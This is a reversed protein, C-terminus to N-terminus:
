RPPMPPRSPRRRQWGASVMWADTQVWTAEDGSPITFVDYHHVKKESDTITLTGSCDSKMTYTATYPGRKIVGNVSITSVGKAHGNGDYIERGSAAIPKGNDIGDQAFIYDGRLTALSCTEPTREPMRDPPPGAPRQALAPMAILAILFAFKKM